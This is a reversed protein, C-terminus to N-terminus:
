DLPTPAIQCSNIIKELFKVPELLKTGLTGKKEFMAANGRWVGWIKAPM